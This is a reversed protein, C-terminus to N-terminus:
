YCATKKISFGPFVYKHNSVFVCTYFCYMVFIRNVFAPSAVPENRKLVELRKPEQRVTCSSRFFCNDRQTHHSLHTSPKHSVSKLYYYLVHNPIFLVEYPASTAEIVNRYEPLKLSFHSSFFFFWCAKFLLSHFRYYVPIYPSFSALYGISPLEQHHM